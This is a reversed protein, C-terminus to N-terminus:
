IQVLTAIGTYTTEITVYILIQRIEMPGCIVTQRIGIRGCKTIHRIGM